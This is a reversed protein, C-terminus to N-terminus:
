ASAELEVGLNKAVQVSVQKDTVGQEEAEAAALAVQEANEAIRAGQEGTTQVYTDYTAKVTETMAVGTKISELAYEMNGSAQGRIAHASVRDRESTVGQDHGIQVVQAFLAPHQAKLEELDMVSVRTPQEGKAATKTPSGSAATASAQGQEPKSRTNQAAIEDIMGAAKAREALLMGGQGFNKIVDESSTDRGQAILGIFEDEVANLEDRVMEIGEDTTVDPRKRPANKSTITVIQEDVFRETVVGVSGVAAQPNNAIIHDAQSIIGFAGSAALDTVQATVPKSVSSIAALTDFLGTVTGGPSSVEMIVEEVAADGDAQQLAAIIDGYVTNGGGFYAAFFDPQPTLIGIVPIIAKGDVVQMHEGRSVRGSRTSIFADIQASDINMTRMAATLSDLNSQKIAWLSM